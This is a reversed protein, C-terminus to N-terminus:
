SSYTEISKLKLMVHWGSFVHCNIFHSLFKKEFETGHIHDNRNRFVNWCFFKVIKWFIFFFLYFNCSTSMYVCRINVFSILIYISICMIKLFDQIYFIASILKLFSCLVRMRIHEIVKWRLRENVEHRQYFVLNQLLPFYYEYHLCYQVLRFLFWM